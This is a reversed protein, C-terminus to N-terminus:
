VIDQKAFLVCVNIVTNKLFGDDPYVHCFGGDYGGKYWVNDTLSLVSAVIYGTPAHTTFDYWGGSDTTITLIKYILNSNILNSNLEVM